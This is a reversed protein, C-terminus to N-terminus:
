NYSITEATIKIIFNDNYVDNLLCFMWVKNTELKGFLLIQMLQM